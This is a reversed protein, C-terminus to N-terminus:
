SISSYKCWLHFNEYNILSADVNTEDVNLSLFFLVVHSMIHLYM